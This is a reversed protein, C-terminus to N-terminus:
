QFKPFFPTSSFFNFFFQFFFFRKLGLGDELTHNQAYNMSFKTGYLTLPSNCTISKALERAGKLLEDRNPYTKTVLGGTLCEKGTFDSGTFCMMRAM